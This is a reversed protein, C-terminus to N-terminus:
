VTKYFDFLRLDDPTKYHTNVNPDKFFGLELMKNHAEEDGSLAKDEMEKKVKMFKRYTFLDDDGKKFKRMFEALNQYKDLLEYM